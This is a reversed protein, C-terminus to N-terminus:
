SKLEEQWQKKQLVHEIVDHIIIIDFKEKGEVSFIDQCIFNGSLGKEQFFQKAEEIRTDSIDIGTIKCGRQSFPFLNGGEGCGMELVSLESTIPTHSEIFPLFYKECTRALENFYHKRNTHRKQM